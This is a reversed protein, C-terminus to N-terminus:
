IMKACWFGCRTDALKTNKEFTWVSPSTKENRQLDIQLFAATDGNVM